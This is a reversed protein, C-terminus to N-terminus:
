ESFLAAMADRLSQTDSALFWFAVLFLLSSLTVYLPGQVASEMHEHRVARSLDQELRVWELLNQKAGIAQLAAVDRAGADLLLAHIGISEMRIADGQFSFPVERDTLGKELLKRLREQRMGYVVVGPPVHFVILLLVLFYLSLLILWVWNGVLSYAARPFFLEIPGVAIMGAMGMGLLLLDFSRSLVTPHKRWRLMGMVSLYAGLPLLAFSLRIPDLMVLNTPSRKDRRM